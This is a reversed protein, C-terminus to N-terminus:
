SPEKIKQSLAANSNSVGLKMVAIGPLFTHHAWEPINLSWRWCKLTMAIKLDFGNLRCKWYLLTFCLPTYFHVIASISFISHPTHLIDDWVWDETKMSRYDRMFGLAAKCVGTIDFIDSTRGSKQWIRASARESTSNESPQKCLEYKTPMYRSTTSSIVAWASNVIMSPQGKKIAALLRLKLHM